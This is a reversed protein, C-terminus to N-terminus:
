LPFSPRFSSCLFPAPPPSGAGLSPINNVQGRPLPISGVPQERELPEGDPSDGRDRVGEKMEKCFTERFEPTDEYGHVTIGHQVVAQILEEESDASIAVMCKLDGPYDRCYIYKRTM